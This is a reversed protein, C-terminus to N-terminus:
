FSGDDEVIQFEWRQTGPIAVGADDLAPEYEFRHVVDVTKRDLEPDVGQLLQVGRVRGHEDISLRLKITQGAFRSAGVIRMNRYDHRPRPSRAHSVGGPAEPITWSTAGDALRDGLGAGIGSQGAGSTVDAQKAAEHDAFRTPDEYRIQLSALSQVAPPATPQSRQVPERRGHVGAGVRSGVPRTAPATRAPRLSPPPSPPVPAANVVEIPTLAVSRPAPVLHNGGLAILLGVAAGHLALSAAAALRSRRHESGAVGRHVM